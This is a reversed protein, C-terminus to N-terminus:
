LGASVEQTSDGHYLRVRMDPTVKLNGPSNLNRFGEAPKARQAKGYVVIAVEANHHMSAHAVVRIGVDVRLTEDFRRAEGISSVFQEIPQPVMIPTTPIAVGGIVLIEILQDGPICVSIVLLCVGRRKPGSGILILM